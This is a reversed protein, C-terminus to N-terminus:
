NIRNWPGEVGAERCLLYLGESREAWYKRCTGTGVPANKNQM